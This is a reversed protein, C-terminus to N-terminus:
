FLERRVKARFKLLDRHFVTIKEKKLLAEDNGSRGKLVDEGQQVLPHGNGEDGAVPFLHGSAQVLHLHLLDPFGVFGELLEVLPLRGNELGDVLLPLEGFLQLLLNLGGIFLALEFVEVEGVFGFPPCLRGYGLLLPKLGQGEEDEIRALLLLRFGHGEGEDVGGLTDGRDLLSQLSGTM